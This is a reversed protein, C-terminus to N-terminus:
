DTRIADVPNTKGAKAAQYAVVLLGLITVVVGASLVYWINLQIKYAFSRLWQTGLLWTLPAAMLFSVLILKIADTSFLTVIQTVSSGLVKRIGIEKARQAISFLTLGFLGLLSILVSFCTLVITFTASYKESQYNQDIYDDLFQYYFPTNNAFKKWQEELVKLGSERNNLKASILWANRDDMRLIIPSVSNHLPQFYFDKVVGVIVGTRVSDTNFMVPHGIPNELGYQNVFTENVLCGLKDSAQTSSLKRGEKLEINMLGLHSDDIILTTIADWTDSNSEPVKYRWFSQLRGLRNNSLSVQQISSNDLVSSRFSEFNQKIESTAFFTVIQDTNYGLDKNLLYNLQNYVLVSFTLLVISTTFQFVSLSRRLTSKSTSHAMSKLVKAPNFSSIYLAPYFGALLVTIILVSLLVAMFQLLSPVTITVNVFHRLLPISLYLLVVAILTATVLQLFTESLYQSILQKRLAGMTKRVGIEKARRLALATSLNIFNFCAVLLIIVGLSSILYLAQLNGTKVDGKIGKTFYIERLPQLWDDIDNVPRTSSKTYSAYFADTIRKQLEQINVGPATL